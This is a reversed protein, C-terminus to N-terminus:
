VEALWGVSTRMHRLRALPPQQGVLVERDVARQDLGPSAELAEFPRVRRRRGGIVRAIRGHIKVALAAAIRGRRRVWRTLSASVEGEARAPGRQRPPLSTRHQPKATRPVAALTRGRVASPAAVRQVAVPCCGGPRSADLGQHQLYFAYL